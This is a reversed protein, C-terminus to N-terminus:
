EELLKLLEERDTPSTYVVAAVKKWDETRVRNLFIEAHRALAGDLYVEVRGPGVTMRDESSRRMKESVHKALTNLRRGSSHRLLVLSFIPPKEMQLRARVTDMVSAVPAEDPTSVKGPLDEVDAGAAAAPRGRRLLSEIRSALEEPNLGGSIFDDAGFRLARARDSARLDYGCLVLIPPRWAARRLQHMVHLARNVSRRDVNLVVLGFERRALEPFADVPDSTRFLEFSSEFWLRLEEPLEGPIDLLLVRRRVNARSEKARERRAGNFPVIGLRDRIDFGIPGALDAPGATKRIIFQRRGSSNLTLHLVLSARQSIVDFGSDLEALQEASFTLLCTSGLSGLLDVLLEASNAVERGEVLPACTDFVIRDPRSGGGVLGELESFVEAPDITRRYRQRFGPQYGLMLWDGSKLHADLDIGISNAQKVMDEPRAQTLHAVRGGQRVGEDLFHLATVTKGTGPGGVLAILGGPWYGNLREDLVKVGL